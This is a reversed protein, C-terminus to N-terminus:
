RNFRSPCLPQLVTKSIAGAYREACLPSSSRACRRYLKKKRLLSKAEERKGHDLLERIREIMMVTEAKKGSLGVPVEYYSLGNKM